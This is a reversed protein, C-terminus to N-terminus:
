PLSPPACDPSNPRQSCRALWSGDLPEHGRLDASRLPGAAFRRNIREAATSGEPLPVDLLHETFCTKFSHRVRLRILPRGPENPPYDSLLVHRSCPQNRGQDPRADDQEGRHELARAFPARDACDADTACTVDTRYAPHPPDLLVRDLLGRRDYQTTATSLGLLRAFQKPSWMAPGAFVRDSRVFLM